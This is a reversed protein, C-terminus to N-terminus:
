HKHLFGRKKKKKEEPPPAIGGLPKAMVEAMPVEMRIDRLSDPTSPKPADEMMSGHSTLSEPNSSGNQNPIRLHTPAQGLGQVSASGGPFTKKQQTAPSSTQMGSGGMMMSKHKAGNATPMPMGGRGGYDINLAAEPFASRRSSKKVPYGQPPAGHGNQNMLYQSSNSTMSPYQNMQLQQHLAMSNTRPAGNHVPVNQQPLHQPPMQGAYNIGQHSSSNSTVRSRPQPMQQNPPPGNHQYRQPNRHSPPPASNHPFGNSPLGQPPRQDYGNGEFHQGYPNNGTLSASKRYNPAGNNYHGNSNTHGANGNNYMAANPGAGHNGPHNSYSTHGDHYQDLDDIDEDPENPHLSAHQADLLERERELLAQERRLLDREKESFDEDVLDQQDQEAHGVSHRPVQPVQPTGNANLSSGYVAMDTLDSLDPTQTQSPALSRFAQSKKVEGTPSSSQARASGVDSRNNAITGHEFSQTQQQQHSWDSEAQRIRAELDKLAASKEHLHDDLDHLMAEKESQLSELESLKTDYLRSQEEFKQVLASQAKQRQSLTAELQRMHASRERYQSEVSEKEIKLAALDQSVTSLDKSYQDSNASKRTFFVSDASNMKLLQCVISYLNELYPTRVGHDDGLLIPQLLLLDVNVDLQHYFNYFVSNSNRYKPVSAAEPVPVPVPFHASWNKMINTENEFGKILKCEMKKIIKFIENVLGTILPKALIQKDLNAPYPEEFIVSLPNVVIRPLALKWQYTMFEKHNNSKLLSINGGSQEQVVQLLKYFRAYTESDAVKYLAKSEDTCTGLYIRQDQNLVAHYFDNSRSSRKVDAENMISCVTVKKSKAYSSVVFPELSVYGTSEVVVLSNAHLYPGVNNCTDQFSQLDSVSMLVVDFKRQPDLHGLKVVQTTPKYLGDGLQPSQWRIPVSSDLTPAVM